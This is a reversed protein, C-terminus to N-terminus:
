EAAESVYVVELPCDLPMPFAHRGGPPVLIGFLVQPEDRMDALRCIAVDDTERRFFPCSACDNDPIDFEVRYRM